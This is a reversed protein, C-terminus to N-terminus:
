SLVKLADMIKNNEEQSTTNLLELVYSDNKTTNILMNGIWANPILREKYMENTNKSAQKLGVVGFIGVTLLFLSSLAILIFIKQSVKRNQFFKMNNVGRIIILNVKTNIRSDM